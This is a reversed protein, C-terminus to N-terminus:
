GDSAEAAGDRRLLGGPRAPDHLPLDIELTTGAGPPSHLRLYGGTAEVRDKLGVLGSGHSFDAGGLGDDRVRVHLVGEREAMVIEVATAHAHKTANTLAECVTYYAAIEVSEALREEVQVDLHVPVASRRAVTKLAPGLGGDALIAPHLGRAIERLEELVDDMGAAVEDLQHVHEDGGPPATAEAARLELALSVLRQQAGDHLNREIRRRTADATAVIRARSATLAAQAEANAIATAALETFGSLRAETGAPMPGRMSGAVMVGWLRGEVSVPVGVAARVGIERAAEAISGSAGVYDDIRAVRATQFVLTCLNQGGLREQTGVHFAADTRNWAAVVTITGDADYRDMTAFDTRLLRGAEETIATLVQAPPAAQAVLTAVQRLAAQEKGFRRLEMRAQANAIATAALETFGALQTETGPPLPEARSDVIMNGWLRGEVNVPVGVAARFGFERALEGIPGSASAYDDIRAARGTKSVRTSVNQGGLRARNGVPFAAGSSSWAAVVTRTDDPDYRAMTAYNASLLRGAEETVATFVEEPPAPRAVLTAVRRLAAQEEAFGRLELRAQANAVATAALETFGALREETGAPLPEEGTSGVFMVGWLRAEVSVPVGVVARFGFRHADDAAPGSANSYDDIRATRGTQFVMTSVNRGGLRARTGVPFAPGTSSWAAVVTRTGDPDYRAMTTYDAGLLRGAEETIASFVEAPPVARAVLTAVRRLAAQEEAIRDQDARPLAAM